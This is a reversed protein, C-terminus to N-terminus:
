ELIPIKHRIKNAPGIDRTFATVPWARTTFSSRVVTPLAKTKFGAARLFHQSAVNEPDTHAYVPEKFVGRELCHNFVAKYAEFGYGKGRESPQTFYSIRPRKEQDQYIEILGVIDGSGKRFMFLYFDGYVRKLEDDLAKASAIEPKDINYRHLFASRDKGCFDRVAQDDRRSLPRLVLHPTKLAAPFTERLHKQFDRAM